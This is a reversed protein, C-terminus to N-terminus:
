NLEFTFMQQLNNSLFLINVQKIVDNDPELLRKLINEMGAIDAMM